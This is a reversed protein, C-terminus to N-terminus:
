TNCDVPCTNADEDLERQCILDGCFAEDVGGTPDVEVTISVSGSQGTQYTVTLTYTTTQTPCDSLSGIGPVPRGLLTASYGVFSDVSWTIFTCRGPSLRIPNADIRILGGGGGGSGGPNGGGSDGTGGGTNPDGSTVPTPPRQISIPVRLVSGVVILNADTICNVGMLTEIDINAASAIVSLTDGSQVRYTFEWAVLIDICGNEDTTTEADGASDAPAEETSEVPIPEPIEVDRELLDLPLNSDDSLDFARVESPVDIITLGDEGGLPMWVESGPMLIRQEDMVNLIGEGELLSIIMEDNKIATVHATSGLILEAGNIEMRVRRNDPTQILLASTPVEDCAIGGVRTQVTFARMTSTDTDLVVDGYLLFTVNQGPLSRPLNVQAKLLAIGWTEMMDSYPTTQIREFVALDAIDGVREFAVAQLNPRLRVDIMANGYCAQNRGVGECVTGVRELADEIEAGCSGGVPPFQAVPSYDLEVEPVAFTSATSIFLLATFLLWRLGHRVARNWLSPDNVLTSHMYRWKFVTNIVISLM